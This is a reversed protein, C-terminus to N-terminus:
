LIVALLKRVIQNKGTPDKVIKCRTAGDVLTFKVRNDGSMIRELGDSFLVKLALISSTPINIPDFSSADLPDATTIQYSSASFDSINVAVPLNVSIPVSGAVVSVGCIDWSADIAMSCLKPSGM